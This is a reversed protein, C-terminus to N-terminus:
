AGTPLLNGKRVNCSLHALKVNEPDHAGGRSLPVVHDQSASQPSPYTLAPDVAEHCLHCTWGDRAAIDALVVREGSSAGKRRARRRHYADRRADTWVFEPRVYDEAARQAVNYCPGCLGKARHPRQCGDQSCRRANTDIARGARRRCQERCYVASRGPGPKRPPM